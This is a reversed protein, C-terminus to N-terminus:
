NSKPQQCVLIVRGLTHTIAGDILGKSNRAAFVVFASYKVCVAPEQRSKAVDDHTLGFEDVLREYAFAEEIPNLNKRQINEIM